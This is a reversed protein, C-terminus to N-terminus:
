TSPWTPWDAPLKEAAREADAVAVVRDLPAGGAAEVAARVAGEVLPGRSVRVRGRDFAPLEELAMELALIASGLDFLVVAGDGASAALAERLAAGIVPSSTGLSGIATGGATAVPVESAAQRVMARLGGLLEVSHAVLVLSVM